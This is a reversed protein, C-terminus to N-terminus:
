LTPFCYSSSPTRPASLFQTGRALIRSSPQVPLLVKCSFSASPGSTKATTTQQPKNLVANITPAELNDSNTATHRATIRFRRRLRALFFQRVEGDEMPSFPLLASELLGMWARKGDDTAPSIALCVCGCRNPSTCAEDRTEPTCLLSSVHRRRPTAPCALLM